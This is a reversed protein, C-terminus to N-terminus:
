SSEQSNSLYKLPRTDVAASLEYTVPVALPSHPVNLGPPASGPFASPPIPSPHFLILYTPLLLLCFTSLFDLSKGSIFSKLSPSFSFWPPNFKWCGGKCLDLHNLRPWKDWVRWHSMEVIGVFCKRQQWSWTHIAFSIWVGLVEQSLIEHTSSAYCVKRGPSVVSCVHVERQM